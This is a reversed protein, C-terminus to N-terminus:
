NVGEVDMSYKAYKRKKKFLSVFFIISFYFLAGAIIRTNVVFASFFGGTISSTLNDLVFVYFGVTIPTKDTTILKWYIWSYIFAVWIPSLVVGLIGFNAYADGVFLTNAVNVWGGQVGHPELFTAAVRAADVFPLGLYNLISLSKGYLFDNMDPFIEYYSPLSQIQGILIRGIPGSYFNSLIDKIGYDTNLYHASYLSLVMLFIGTGYKFLKKYPIRGNTFTIIFIYPLFYWAVGSKSMNAGSVFIACFMLIFHIIKWTKDKTFRIYSFSIYSALPILSKGIVNKVLLSGTFFRDYSVRALSVRGAKGTLYLYLPANHKSLYIVVMIAIISFIIFFVKVYKDKDLYKYQLDKSLYNGIKKNIGFRFISNFIIISIPMMIMIYYVSLLSYLYTKSDRIFSDILPSRIGLVMLNSGVVALMLLQWIFLHTHPLYINLKMSGFSIKFLYISIIIVVAAILILFIIPM